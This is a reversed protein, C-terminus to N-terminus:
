VHPFGTAVQFMRILSVHRLQLLTHILGRRRSPMPNFEYMTPNPNLNRTYRILRGVEKELAQARDEALRLSNEMEGITRALEAMKGEAKSQMDAMDAQSQRVQREARDKLATAEEAKNRQDVIQEKLEEASSLAGELRKKLGSVEEESAFEIAQPCALDLRSERIHIYTHM